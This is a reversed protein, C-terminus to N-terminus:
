CKSYFDAIEGGLASQLDAYLDPNSSADAFWNPGWLMDYDKLSAIDAEETSANCVLDLYIRIDSSNDFVGLGFSSGEDSCFLVSGGIPEEGEGSPLVDALAQESAQECPIGAANLKEKASDLTLDSSGGAFCGSLGILLAAGTAAIVGFKLM